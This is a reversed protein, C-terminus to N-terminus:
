AELALLVNLNARVHLVQAEGSWLVKKWIDPIQLRDDLNFSPKGLM